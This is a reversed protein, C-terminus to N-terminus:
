KAILNAANVNERLLGLDKGMKAYIDLDAPRIEIDFSSFGPMKVGLYKAEITKVDEPNAKAYAIAEALAERFGKVAKPNADAWIRTSIWFGFIMNDHVESFFDAVKVAAGDQEIKSRFPELVAVADLTKGRLLDNMQPFSAEILTVQNVPVGKAELWVRLVVDIVSNLGPVGIKKGKLDAPAAINLDKRALLSVTPNDSRQRAAGSVAVLDLGGEAAQLLGPGTGTGIDISKSMLAAPINSALAVRTFSADIDRKAFYGKEFAVFAPLFDGAATYGISIKTQAEALQSGAFLSTLIFGILGGWYKMANDM